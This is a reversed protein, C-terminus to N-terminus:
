DLGRNLLKLCGMWEAAEKDSRYEKFCPTGLTFHLLHADVNSPYEGVLWNWTRNLEGIELDDLWKFRHLYNGTAGAIFEPTLLQHKPHGCNWIIVSSWNKRPYDHNPAGLYKKDQKTKYDHKVVQVAYAPDRLSWLMSVDDRLIMDGDFYIAWGKFEMLFPVLFRSYIFANSGDAHVENYFSMASLHLPSFTVPRSTHALVSECFVHYAVAEKPDYGVFLNM